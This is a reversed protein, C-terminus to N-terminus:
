FADDVLRMIKKAMLTDEDFCIIGPCDFGSVFRFGILKPEFKLYKKVIEKDLVLKAKADSKPNSIARKRITKSAGYPIWYDELNGNRGSLPPVICCHKKFYEVMEEDWGFDLLEDPNTYNREKPDLTMHSLTYVGVKEVKAESILSEKIQNQLNKM